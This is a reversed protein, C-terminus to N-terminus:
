RAPNGPQSRNMLDGPDFIATFQGFARVLEAGFMRPLLEGRSQGDGHEGSFSGGYSAVLDAAREIFRRFAAIGDATVLDFPIRTTCVARASTLGPCWAAQCGAGPDPRPDVLRTEAGTRAGSPEARM